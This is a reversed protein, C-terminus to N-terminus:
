AAAAETTAPMPEGALACSIAILAGADGHKPDTPEALTRGIIDQALAVRRRLEALERRGTVDNLSDAPQESRWELITLQGCKCRLWLAATTHVTGCGCRFEYESEVRV